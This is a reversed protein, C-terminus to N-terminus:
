KGASKATLRKQLRKSPSTHAKPWTTEYCGVDAATFSIKATTNEMKPWDEVKVRLKRRWTYQGHGAVSAVRMEETSSPKDETEAKDSHVRQIEGPYCMKATVDTIPLRGPNHVTFFYVYDGKGNRVETLRPRQPLEYTLTVAQVEALREDLDAVKSRHFEYLGWGIGVVAAVAAIVTGIAELAQWDV